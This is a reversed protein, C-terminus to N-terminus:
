QIDFLSQVTGKSPDSLPEVKLACNVSAAGTVTWNFSGDNPMSAAIVESFTKGGDRSLSIKVNDNIGQTDWKIPMVDGISWHSAQLPSTIYLNSDIWLQGGRVARVYLSYSKSYSNNEGLGLNIYWALGTHRAYTTASWYEWNLNKINLFDIDISPMYKSYDVISRLENQSPLRWDSYGAIQLNKCYSLSDQWTMVNDSPTQQWMLGTQIDTVSGDNNIHLYVFSQSQESRVARVYKRFSMHYTSAVGYKFSIRWASSDPFHSHTTASWYYSSISTYPFYETSLSPNLQELNSLLAIEKITPLRWDNYGGYNKTNLANIFDETDTGDGPTGSDEGNTGPNSSSWSYTNDADHPNSYDQVDNKNQKAEWILGTINDRVM